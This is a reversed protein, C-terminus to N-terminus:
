SLRPVIRDDTLTAGRREALRQHMARCRTYWLKEYQEGTVIRCQLDTVSRIGAQLCWGVCIEYAAWDLEDTEWYARISTRGREFAAFARTHGDTLAVRTGIRRVPVAEVLAGRDGAISRRVEVLKDLCIYLQSPQLNSLDVDFTKMKEHCM